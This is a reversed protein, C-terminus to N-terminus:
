VGLNDSSKKRTYDLETTDSIQLIRQLAGQKQSDLNLSELHAQIIKEQSVKENSFFRYAGKISSQNKSATTIPSKIDITLDSCLKEFRIKLREDGFNESTSLKSKTDKM